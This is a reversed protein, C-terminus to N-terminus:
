TPTSSALAGVYVSASDFNFAGSLDPKNSTGLIHINGDMSGSLSAMKDPIFPTIMELPLGSISLVGNISDRIGDNYYGATMNTIERGDRFLHVDMQHQDSSIPLYVANCVLNGVRQDNYRLTDINMDATVLFVTDEPVYQFTANLLGSMSPLYAPFANSILGLDVQQLEAFLSPYTIATTDEQQQSYFHATAIDSELSINAEIEKENRYLLFNDKNLVFKRYAIVPEEPFLHM